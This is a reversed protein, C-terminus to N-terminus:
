SLKKDKVLKLATDYVTSDFPGHAVGVKGMEIKGKKDILFVSPLHMHEGPAQVQYLTGVKIDPDALMPFAFGRQSRASKTTNVDDVSITVIQLHAADFDAKSQHLQM